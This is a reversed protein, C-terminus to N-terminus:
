AFANMDAPDIDQADSPMQGPDLWSGPDFQRSSTFASWDRDECIEQIRLEAEDHDDMSYNQNDNIIALQEDVLPKDQPAFWYLMTGYRANHVGNCDCPYEKVSTFLVVREIGTGKCKPCNPNPGPENSGELAVSDHIFAQQGHAFYELTTQVTYPDPAGQQPSMTHLRQQIAQMAQQAASSAAVKFANQLWNARRQQDKLERKCVPCREWPPNPPRPLDYERWYWFSEPPIDKGCKTIGPQRENFNPPYHEAHAMLDDKFRIWVPGSIGAEKKNMTYGQSSKSNWSGGLDFLRLTGQPDRGVNRGTVDTLFFGQNLLCICLAYAEKLFPMLQPTPKPELWAVPKNLQDIVQEFSLPQYEPNIRDKYRFTATYHHSEMASAVKSLWNKEKDNLETLRDMVIAYVPYHHVPQVERVAHIRVVCPCPNHWVHKAAEAEGTGTTYKLAMGRTTFAIGETGEGLWELDPHFEEESKAQDETMRARVKDGGINTPSTGFPLPMSKQARCLWSM